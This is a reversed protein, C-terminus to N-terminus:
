RLGFFLIFFLTLAACYVLSVVVYRVDVIDACSEDVVGRYMYKALFLCHVLYSIVACDVVVTVTCTTCSQRKSHMTKNVRQSKGLGQNNYLTLTCTGESSLDRHWAVLHLKERMQRFRKNSMDHQNYTTHSLFLVISLM